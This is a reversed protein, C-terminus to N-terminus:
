RVSTKGSPSFILYDSLALVSSRRKAQMASVAEAQDETQEEVGAMGRATAYPVQLVYNQVEIDNRVCAEHAVATRDCVRLNLPDVFTNAPTPNLLVSTVVDLGGALQRATRAPVGCSFKVHNTGLLGLLLGSPHQDLWEISASAMAEDRLSQRALFNTFTMDRVLDTSSTMKMGSKQMLEFPPRLTYSVYDSFARTGGFHEFDDLDPVYKLLKAHDLSALGGLEVKAKDESDADLAVLDVGYERCIRLIPLYAEFSWYWRRKWDTAVFLQEENIRRAIYDNLVPQFQQQVAELGVALPKRTALMRRLIAAQLLHDRLDPHHEGLFIARQSGLARVLRSASLQNATPGARRTSDVKVAYISSAKLLHALFKEDELKAANAGQPLLLAAAQGAALVMRRSITGAGDSPSVNCWHARHHKLVIPLSPSAQSIGGGTVYAAPLCSLM